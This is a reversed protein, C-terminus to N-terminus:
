WIKYVKGKGEDEVAWANRLPNALQSICTYYTSFSISYLSISPKYIWVVKWMTTSILSFSFDYFKYFGGRREVRFDRRIFYWCSLVSPSCAQRAVWGLAHVLLLLLVNRSPITKHSFSELKTETKNSYYYDHYITIIITDTLFYSSFSFSLFM